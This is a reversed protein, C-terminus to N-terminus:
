FSPPTIAWLARVEKDGVTEWTHPITSDYYISDGAELVVEQDGIIGKYTGELIIGCEEGEHTYPKVFEVGPPHYLYILELKHQHDPCLLEYWSGSPLVLKKRDKKRVIGITPSKKSNGLSSSGGDKDLIDSMNTGLAEAIKSLNTVTPISINREVQSLQSTSVKSKKSLEKLTMKKKLRVAKLNDGLEM